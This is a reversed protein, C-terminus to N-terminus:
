RRPLDATAARWAAALAIPAARARGIRCGTADHATGEYEWHRIAEALLPGPLTGNARVVRWWPVSSGWRSMTAGVTRAHTGVIRAITGYTTVRGPPVLEVARLIFEVRLDPNM